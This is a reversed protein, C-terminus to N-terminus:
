WKCFQAEHSLSEKLKTLREIEELQTPSYFATKLKQVKDLCDKVIQLFDSTSFKELFVGFSLSISPLGVSESPNDLFTEVFRMGEAKARSLVQEPRAVLKSLTVSVPETYKLSRFKEIRGNLSNASPVTHMSLLDALQAEAHVLKDFKASNFDNKLKADIEEMKETAMQRMQELHCGGIMAPPPLYTEAFEEFIFRLFSTDCNDFENIFEDVSDERSKVGIMSSEVIRNLKGLDEGTPYYRDGYSYCNDTNMRMEVADYLQQSAHIKVSRRRSEWELSTSVLPTILALFVPLIVRTKKM